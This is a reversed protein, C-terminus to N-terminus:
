FLFAVVLTLKRLFYTVIRRHREALFVDVLLIICAMCLLFIEPLAVSFQPLTFDM